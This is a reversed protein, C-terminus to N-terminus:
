SLNPKIKTLNSVPTLQSIRHNLKCYILDLMVDANDGFLERLVHEFRKVNFEESNLFIGKQNLQWTVDQKISGGLYSLVDTVSRCLIQKATLTDINELTYSHHPVINRNNTIEKGM